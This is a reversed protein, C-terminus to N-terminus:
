AYFLQWNLFAITCFSFASPYAFGFQFSSEFAFNFWFFNNCIYIPGYVCHIALHHSIHNYAIGKEQMHTVKEKNRFFLCTINLILWISIWWKIDYQSVLPVGAYVKHPQLKLVSSFNRSFAYGIKGAKLLPNWFQM